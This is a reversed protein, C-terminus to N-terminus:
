ALTVLVMSMSALFNNAAHAVIPVAINRTWAYFFAMTGGTIATAVMMAPFTVAYVQYHALSFMASSAVIGAIDALISRTDRRPVFAQCAFLVTAFVLYGARVMTETAFANAVTCGMICLMFIWSIMPKRSNFALQISTMLMFRYYIEEYVGIAVYFFAKEWAVVQFTGTFGSAIVNTMVVAITCFVMGLATIVVGGWEREKWGVYASMGFLAALIPSGLALVYENNMQWATNDSHKAIQWFVFVAVAAVILITYFTWYLKGQKAAM